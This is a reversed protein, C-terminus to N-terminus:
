IAVTDAGSRVRGEDLLNHIKKYYADATVTLANSIQHSVGVDYYHTRESRVNDSM